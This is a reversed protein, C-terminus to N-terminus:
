DQSRKKLSKLQPKKARKVTGGPTLRQNGLVRLVKWGPRTEGLPKVVGHFSQLRGEANVFSGSTETFPAIPLLVDAVDSHVQFPTFMVVMAARQLAALAASQEASPEPRPPPEAPAPVPTEAEKRLRAIRRGLQADDLRRLEPPLVALALEGVGRQYYGAAFDILTTDTEHGVASILPIRSAAAARVVIEENFGWLDELSGGGRAM